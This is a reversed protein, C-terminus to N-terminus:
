FNLIIRVNKLNDLIPRPEKAADVFDQYSFTKSYAISAFVMELCILFDQYSISRLQTSEIEPSGFVGLKMLFLLLCSQM